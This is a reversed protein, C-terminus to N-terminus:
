KACLSEGRASQWRARVLISIPVRVLVYCVLCRLLELQGALRKYSPLHAKGGRELAALQEEVSLIAQDLSKLASSVSTAARKTENSIMGCREGFMLSQLTEDAQEADPRCNVIAHTRSNGGFAGKLMTTLKSELYPVHRRCEVLAAIVQWDWTRGLCRAM